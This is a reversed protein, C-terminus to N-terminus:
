LTKNHMNTHFCVDNVDTSISVKHARCNVQKWENFTINDTEFAGSEAIKELLECEKCKNNNIKNFLM